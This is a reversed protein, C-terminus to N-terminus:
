DQNDLEPLRELSFTMVSSPLTKVTSIKM